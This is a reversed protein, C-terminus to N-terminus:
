PITTKNYKKNKKFVLTTINYILTFLFKYKKKFILFIDQKFQTSTKSIQQLLNQYMSRM